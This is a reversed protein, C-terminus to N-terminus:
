GGIVQDPHVDAAIAEVNVARGQYPKRTAFVQRLAGSPFKPVAAAVRDKDMFTELHVVPTMDPELVIVMRKVAAAEAGVMEAFLHMLPTSDSLVDPIKRCKQFAAWDALLARIKNLEELSLENSTASKM